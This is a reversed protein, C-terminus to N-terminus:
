TSPNWGIKVFTTKLKWLTELHINARTNTTQICKQSIVRGYFSVRQKATLTCTCMSMREAWLQDNQLSPLDSLNKFYFGQNRVNNFYWLIKKIKYFKTVLNKPVTQVKSASLYSLPFSSRNWRYWSCFFYKAKLEM